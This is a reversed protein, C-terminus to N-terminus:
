KKIVIVLKEKIKKIFFKRDNIIKKIKNISIGSWDAYSYKLNFKDLDDIIILMDRNKIDKILNIEDLLPVTVESLKNKLLNTDIIKKTFLQL